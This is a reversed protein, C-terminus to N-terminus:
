GVMVDEDGYPILLAEATPHLANKLRIIGTEGFGTAGFPVDDAKFNAISQVVAAKVVAAPIAAWGWQATVKVLAQTNKEAYALLGWVPFWLSRIARIKTYPWGAQGNEIGNLPELQFDLRNWTTGFTGDGAYDTQVILGADTQFDDVECLWGSEAVFTRATATTDGYFRRNLKGEIQRSAADIALSIRDDDATTTIRLAAKVDALACLPNTLTYSV